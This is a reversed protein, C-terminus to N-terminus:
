AKVLIEVLELEFTLDHGALPHNADIVVQEDNVDAVTVVTVEGDRQRVELRQGVEPSIDEPFEERKVALLLEPRQPGYAQDAPITVTREEGQQMEVLTEELSPILTGDGVTVELPDREKSSAFVRGDDLRGTYHVKITDGSHPTSM